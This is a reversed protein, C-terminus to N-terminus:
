PRFLDQSERQYWSAFGGKRALLLAQAVRRAMLAPLAGRNGASAQRTDLSIRFNLITRPPNGPDTRATSEQSERGPSQNARQMWEKNRM